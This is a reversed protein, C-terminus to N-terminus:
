CNRSLKTQMLEEEEKEIHQIYTKSTAWDVQPSPRLDPLDETFATSLLVALFYLWIVYYSLIFFPM